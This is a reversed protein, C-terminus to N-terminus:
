RRDPDSPGGKNKAYTRPGSIAPYGPHRLFDIRHQACDKKGSSRAHRAERRSEYSGRADEQRRRQRYVHEVRLGGM